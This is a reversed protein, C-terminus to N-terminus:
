GTIGLEAMKSIFDDVTSPETIDLIMNPGINLKYKESETKEDEIGLGLKICQEAASYGCAFSDQGVFCMGVGEYEQMLKAIQVSTDIGFVKTKGVNGANVVAMIAGINGAECASIFMDLDPTATLMDSAVELAKDQETADQRGVIEYKINNEDLRNLIADIRTSSFEISLADFAIIGIKLPEGSAMKDAYVDKIIEISKEGLTDSMTANDSAYTGYFSEYDESQLGNFIVAPIGAAIAEKLPVDEATSAPAWILGDIGQSVYTNLNELAKAVDSDTCTTNMTVGYDEAAAKAAELLISQHADQQYVAAAFTATGPDKTATYTTGNVTIEYTGTGGSAKEEPKEQGKTEAPAKTEEQAKTETKEPAATTSAGQGKDGCASLLLSGCIALTVWLHRKKM